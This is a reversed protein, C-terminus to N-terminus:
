DVDLEYVNDCAESALSLLNVSKSQTDKLQYLYVLVRQTCAQHSEKFTQKLQWPCVLFVALIAVVVLFALAFSLVERTSENIKM